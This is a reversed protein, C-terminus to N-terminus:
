SSAASASSPSARRPPSFHQAVVRGPFRGRGEQERGHVAHLPLARWREEARAEVRGEPDLRFAEAEEVLGHFGGNGRKSSYHFGLAM